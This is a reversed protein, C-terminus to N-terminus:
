ESVITGPLSVILSRNIIEIDRDCFINQVMNTILNINLLHGIEDSDIRYPMEYRGLQRQVIEKFGHKIGIGFHLGNSKIKNLVEEFYSMALVRVSEITEPDIVHRICLFGRAQFLEHIDDQYKDGKSSNRVCQEGNNSDIVFEM